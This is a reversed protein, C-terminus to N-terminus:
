PHLTIKVGSLKYDHSCTWNNPTYHVLKFVCDFSTIAIPQLKGLEMLQQMNRAVYELISGGLVEVTPM